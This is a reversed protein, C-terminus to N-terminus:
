HCPTCRDFFVPYDREEFLVQYLEKGTPGRYGVDRLWASMAYGWRCKSSEQFIIELPMSFGVGKDHYTSGNLKDHGNTFTYWAYVRLGSPFYRTIQTRMGFDGALFQGVTLQLGVPMSNFRYYVDLFYQSLYDYPVYIPTATNGQGVYRRIQRQFGFDNYNRKWMIAGSLGFAWPSDVPYYIGEATFGGFAIDFFGAGIRTHFGCGLSWSKQLFIQEVRINSQQYYSIRDSNVNLVLSPNLLDYNTLNGATTSITKSCLIKYFVDYWVFGDISAAIDAEYKFKGRSSGFYSSVRPRINWDLVKEAREFLIEPKCRPFSVERMPSVTALEIDTMQHAEYYHLAERKYRYEQCLVTDSSVVVIVESVNHPALLALLCGLRRHVIPEYLYKRNVIRLRLIPLPGCGKELSARLLTFGQIDLAYALDEILYEKTRLSGIAETNKPGCYCIPDGVKPFFGKWSGIDFNSMVSAAIAQGRIHSIGLYICDRYNYKIGYNIPFNQIRGRPHPEANIDWYAVADHEAVFSFGKLFNNCKRWPSYAIGGFFGQIRGWGYGFSAELNWKPWEQTIVVYKSNFLKSGLFDDWGAALGPLVYDTDEPKLINLKFNIGKDAYDGFGYPSLNPDQIGTFIRYAATAEIRSFIQFALFLNNYPPVYSYGTSFDGDNRMRASPMQFYGVQGYHNFILPPADYYKRESERLSILDNFLNDSRKFCSYSCIEEDDEDDEDQPCDEALLSGAFFFLLLTYTFFRM